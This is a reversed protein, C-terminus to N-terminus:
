RAAAKEGMRRSGSIRELGLARCAAEDERLDDLDRLKGAGSTLCGLLALVNEQDSAGQDRVKCPEFGDLAKLLGLRRAAQAVFALGATPTM